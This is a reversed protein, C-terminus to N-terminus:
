GWNDGKHSTFGNGFVESAETVVIFAKDDVESAITRIDAVQSKSCACFLMQKTSGSYSGVSPCLTSGRRCESDIRHSIEEGRDSVIVLLKGSGMGYLMKDIVITAAATCSLGYLVSDFSGFVPWGLMIVIFDTVAIVTGMSFHPRLVKIPVILFDTGGTSSGRMYMFAMGAGLAAGSFVASMFADGDYTPLFPFVVDIFFTCVVMSILSKILFKKGVYKWSLLVFPINLILTIVGIPVNWLANAIMALGSIGGPAFQAGKAFTCIGLAYLFGGVTFYLADKLIEKKNKASFDM